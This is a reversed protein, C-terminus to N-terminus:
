ESVIFMLDRDGDLSDEIFMFFAPLVMDNTKPLHYFAEFISSELVGSFLSSHYFFLVNVLLIILRSFIHEFFEGFVLSLYRELALWGV